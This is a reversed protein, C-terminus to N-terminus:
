PVEPRALDIPADMNTALSWEGVITPRGAAAYMLLSCDGVCPRESGREKGKIIPHTAPM